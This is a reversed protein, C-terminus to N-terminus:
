FAKIIPIRQRSLIINAWHSAVVFVRIFTQQLQPLINIDSKLLM